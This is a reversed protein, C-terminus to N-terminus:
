EVPSVVGQTVRPPRLRSGLTSTGRLIPGYRAAVLPPSVAKLTGPPAMLVSGEGLPVVVFETVVPKILDKLTIIYIERKGPNM